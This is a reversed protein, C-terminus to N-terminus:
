IFAYVLFVGFLAAFAGGTRGLTKVNSLAWSMLKCFNNRGIITLFVAAIVSLWGIIEIALPYRSTASQYILFTGLVLRIVVALIQLEIKNISKRLFGFIIEPNIIIVVGTFCTLAGFIIIFLTM